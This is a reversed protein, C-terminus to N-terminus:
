RRKGLEVDVVVVMERGRGRERGGGRKMVVAKVVSSRREPTKPGSAHLFSDKETEYEDQREDNQSDEQGGRTSSSNSLFLLLDSAGNFYSRVRSQDLHSQPFSSTSLRLDDHM